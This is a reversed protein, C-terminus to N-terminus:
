PSVTLCMAIAFLGVNENTPNDAVVEWVQTSPQVPGSVGVNLGTGSYGGGTLVSNLPCTAFSATQEGPTLITEKGLVQQVAVSVAGHALKQTTVAQDAINGTAVQGAGINGTTVQGQGINGSSVSLPGLKPNTVAGNALNQTTICGTCSPGFPPGGASSPPAASSAAPGVAQVPIQAQALNSPELGGSIVTTSTAAGILIGVSLIAIVFKTPIKKIM